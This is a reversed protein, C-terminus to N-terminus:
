LLEEETPPKKNFNSEVSAMDPIMGNKEWYDDERMEKWRRGQARMPIGASEMRKICALQKTRSPFPSKRLKEITYLFKLRQQNTDRKNRPSVPNGEEDVDVFTTNEKEKPQSFDESSKEIINVSNSVSNHLTMESPQKRNSVLNGLAMESPQVSIRGVLRCVRNKSNRGTCEILGAELLESIGKSIAWQKIGLREEIWDNTAYFDRGNIFFGNM